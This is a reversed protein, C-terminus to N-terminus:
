DKKRSIIIKHFDVGLLKMYKERNEDKFFSLLVADNNYKQIEIM